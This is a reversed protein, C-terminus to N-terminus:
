LRAFLLVKKAKELTLIKPPALTAEYALLFCFKKQKKSRSHRRRLWLHHNFSCFIVKERSLKTVYLM